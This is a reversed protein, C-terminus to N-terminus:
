PQGLFTAFEQLAYKIDLAFGLSETHAAIMKKTNVGIVKGEETVLPGGSNGPNIDANTQIFEDRYASLSGSTVSNRLGIPNGIAYLTAGQPTAAATAPRLHPTTYGNIKLLALDHKDSVKVLYADLETEDALYIKYFRRNQMTALINRYSADAEAFRAKANQYDGLRQEYSKQWLRLYEENTKISRTMANIRAADAQDALARRLSAQDRRQMKEANALREKENKLSAEADRLANQAEHLQQLGEQKRQEPLRVVHRNTIIYGDKSIFFGSGAGLSSEISITALTATEIPTRPQGERTLRALLDKEDHPTPVVDAGADADVVDAGADDGAAADTSVAAAAPDTAEIRAVKDMPLSITGGFKEYIVYGGEVRSEETTIVKGNKLFIQDARAAVAPLLIATLLCTQLFAKKMELPVSKDTTM